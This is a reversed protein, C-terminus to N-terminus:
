KGVWYSIGEYRYVGGLTDIVNQKEVESSTYFHVGQKLNYFRYVPFANTSTRSVNYSPGEFRYVGGLTNIVTNKESESATYFHVGKKLNYFRYVPLTNNPNALNITYSPGEFRYVKGLTNIVTNKESESSTYFHAGAKLNFFRYVPMLVPAVTGVVAAISTTALVEGTAADQLTLATSYTGVQDGMVYFATTATYGDPVTFGASPGFGDVMSNFWNGASDKFWAQVHAKAAADAVVVVKVTRAAGSSNTLTVGVNSAAAPAATPKAALLAGKLVNVSTPSASLVFPAPVAVASAPGFPIVMAAIAVM